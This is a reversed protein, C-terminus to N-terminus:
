ADSEHLVEDKRSCCLCIRRLCVSTIEGLSAAVCIMFLCVAVWGWIICSPGGGTLPYILTTSLGYPVSALVFSMFTVSLTSRSRALQQTYGFAELLDDAPESSRSDRGPFDEKSYALKSERRHLGTSGYDEAMAMSSAMSTTPDDPTLLLSRQQITLLSESKKNRHQLATTNSSEPTTATPM